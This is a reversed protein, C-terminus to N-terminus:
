NRLSLVVWWGLYADVVADRWPQPCKELAMRVPAYVAHVPDRLWTPGKRCLYIAPGISLPYAVLAAVVVV